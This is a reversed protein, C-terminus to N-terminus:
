DIIQANDTVETHLVAVVWHEHDGDPCPVLAGVEIQGPLLAYAQCAGDLEAITVASTELTFETDAM